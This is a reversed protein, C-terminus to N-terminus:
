YILNEEEDEVEEVPNKKQRPIILTAISCRDVGIRVFM